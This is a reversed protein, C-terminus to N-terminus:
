LGAVGPPPPVHLGLDGAINVDNGTLLSAQLEIEGSGEAVVGYYGKAAMSGSITANGGHILVGARKQNFVLVRELLLSKAGTAVIADALTVTKEAAGEGVEYPAPATNSVITNRITGNSQHLALGASHNHHLACALVEFSTPGNIAYLGSGYTLEDPGRNQHTSGASTNTIRSGVLTARTGSPGQVVAGLLRNNDLRSGQLVLAAGRAIVAGMGM